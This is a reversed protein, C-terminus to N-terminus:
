VSPWAVPCETDFTRKLALEDNRLTVSTFWLWASTGVRAKKLSDRYRVASLVRDTLRVFKVVHVVEGLVVPLVELLNLGYRQISKAGAKEFLELLM